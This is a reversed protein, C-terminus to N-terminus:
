RRNIGTASNSAEERWVLPYNIQHLRVDHQLVKVFSSNTRRTMTEWQFALSSLSLKKLQLDWASVQLPGKLNINHVTYVIHSQDPICPILSRFFNCLTAGTPTSCIVAVVSEEAFQGYDSDYDSPFELDLECDALTAEDGQCAIRGITDVEGSPGPLASSGGSLIQAGSAFGLSRCAVQAARRSLNDSFPVRVSSFFDGDFVELRGYAWAGGPDVTGGVLRVDGQSENAATCTCEWMDCYADVFDGNACVHMGLTCNEAGYGEPLVVRAVTRRIHVQSRTCSCIDPYAEFCKRIRCFGPVMTGTAM